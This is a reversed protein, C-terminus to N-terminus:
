SRVGNRRVLLFLPLLGVMLRREREGGPLRTGALSLIIIGTAAGVGKTTRPADVVISALKCLALDWPLKFKCIWRLYHFNLSRVTITINTHGESPETGYSRTFTRDIKFYM